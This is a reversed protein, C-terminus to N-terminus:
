LHAGLSSQQSTHGVIKKAPLMRIKKVIKFSIAKFPDGIKVLLVDHM